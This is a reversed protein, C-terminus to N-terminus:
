VLARWMRVWCSRSRCVSAFSSKSLSVRLPSCIFFSSLIATAGLSCVLMAEDYNPAQRIAAYSQQQLGLEYLNPEKSLTVKAHHILAAWALKSAFDHLSLLQTGPTMPSTKLLMESTAQDRSFDTLM